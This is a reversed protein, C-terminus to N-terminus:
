MAYQRVVEQSYIELGYCIVGSKPDHSRLADCQSLLLYDLVVFMFM